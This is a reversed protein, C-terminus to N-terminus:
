VVKNGVDRSSLSIRHVVASRGLSWSFHSIPINQSMIEMKRCRLANWHNFHFCFLHSFTANDPQKYHACTDHEKFKHQMLGLTHAQVHIQFVNSNTWKYRQRAWCGILKLHSFSDQRKFQPWFSSVEVHNASECGKSSTDTQLVSADRGPETRQPYDMTFPGFGWLTGILLLQFQSFFLVSIIVLLSFLWFCFYPLPACPLLVVWANLPVPVDDVLNQKVANWYEGLYGWYSLFFCGLFVHFPESNYQETNIQFSTWTFALLLGDWTPARAWGLPWDEKWIM